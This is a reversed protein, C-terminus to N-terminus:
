SPQQHLWTEIAVLDTVWAPPLGGPGFTDLIRHLQAQEILDHEALAPEALLKTVERRHTKWGHHIDANYEGKTRRSLNHDPVDHRFAKCLLPKPQWPDTREWPLVALCAEVVNRDFFPMSTPVGAAQMADRYLSARYASARIRVLAAHTTQDDAASTPEAGLIASRVLDVAHTSAWPPMLPSAEWGTAARTTPQEASLTLASRRLWHSFSEGHALASLMESMRINSLAAHGRLHRWGTRPATRLASRLYALPALLVEDGGQGNLNLATGEAALLDATYKQRARGAAFSPPEDLRPAPSTLDAFFEPADAFIPHYESNHLATAVNCSWRLDDEIPSRGVTTILLPDARGAALHALVTSDLGGSLQVSVLGSVREIRRTVATTLAERLAEAGASLTRTATPPAWWRRTRYGASTVNVQSGAPVPTVGCYPSRANRVVSPPEPSALKCALWVPDVLAGTLRRVVDAHSAVVPVNTRTTFVRRFGAVDGAATFGTPTTMLTHFSGPLAMVDDIGRTASTTMQASSALCEGIVAVRVPGLDVLDFGATARGVIWLRGSPYRALVAGADSLQDASAAAADVDPLACWWDFGGRGLNRPVAM